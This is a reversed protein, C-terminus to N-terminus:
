EEDNGWIAWDNNEKVMVPSDPDASAGVIVSVAMMISCQAENFKVIPKTYDKRRM